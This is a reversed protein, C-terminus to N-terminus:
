RLTVLYATLHDVEDRSLKMAPMLAGPKLAAPDDIWARLRDPTNSAAGAAIIRRSMLHTLDPGFVGNAPTGRITHCNICALSAFLERGRRASPDDRAPAQQDAVWRDFEARPHVVVTLLMLAHELGCYEACQGVYVGAALPEMWVRNTRNPIVDVKGSLQPVWFSHIVDVSQLTVFTPTPNAADSVPVHIENATVVGLKPYRVEWWWQHGVVTVELAGPPQPRQEIGWIYRATVLFLVVVILFPVVTWALEIRTSGYVQPPESDPEGPRSRFRAIAFATLGAVVVFIVAALGIVFLALERIMFAPTSAPTFINTPSSMREAAAGLRVLAIPLGFM